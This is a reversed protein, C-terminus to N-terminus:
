IHEAVPDTHETPMGDGARHRSRYDDRQGDVGAPENPEPQRTEAGTAENVAYAFLMSSHKADDDLEHFIM